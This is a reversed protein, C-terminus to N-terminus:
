GAIDLLVTYVTKLCTNATHNQVANRLIVVHRNEIIPYVALKSVDGYLVYIILSESCIYGTTKVVAIM